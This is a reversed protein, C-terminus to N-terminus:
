RSSANTPTLAFARCITRQKNTHNRYYEAFDTCLQNILANSNGDPKVYFENIFNFCPMQTDVGNVFDYPREQCVCFLNISSGWDSQLIPMNKGNVIFNIYISNKEMHKPDVEVPPVKELYRQLTALNKAKASEDKGKTIEGLLHDIFWNDIFDRDVKNNRNWFKM